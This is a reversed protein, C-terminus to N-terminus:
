HNGEMGITEGKLIISWFDDVGDAPHSQHVHTHIEQNITQSYNVTVNKILQCMEGGVSGNENYHVFQISSSEQQENTNHGTRPNEVDVFPEQEDKNGEDLSDSSKTKFKRQWRLKLIRNCVAVVLIFILICLAIVLWLLVEKNRDGKQECLFM